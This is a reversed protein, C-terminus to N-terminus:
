CASEGSNQAQALLNALAVGTVPKYRIRYTGAANTYNDSGTETTTFTRASTFQLM